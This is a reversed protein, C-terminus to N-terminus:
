VRRLEPKPSRPGEPPSDFSTASSEAPLGSARRKGHAVATCLVRASAEWVRAASLFIMAPEGPATSDLSSLRALFAHM